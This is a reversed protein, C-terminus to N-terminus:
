LVGLPPMVRIEDVVADTPQTLVFAITEAVRDPAMMRTLDPTSDMGDWFPTRTSGPLVATVRIGCARLEEALVRTFMLGAAKAACYASSAPFPTVSAISLTNVIHGSGQELMAPAAFRSCLYTGRLNTEVVRWWADPDSDAVPEFVASGANNVLIDLRGTESVVREMLGRASEGDTVDTPVAVAVGGTDAVRAAVRELDSRTRAALYVTAGLLALHVATAEGIGRGAGTIVAVRGSLTKM